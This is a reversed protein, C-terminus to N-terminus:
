RYCCSAITCSNQFFFFRVKVGTIKVSELPKGKGASLIHSVRLIALNNLEVLKSVGQVNVEINTYCEMPKGKVASSLALCASIHWYSEYYYLNLEVLISVGQANAEIHTYSEM